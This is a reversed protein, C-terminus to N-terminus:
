FFFWFARYQNPHLFVFGGFIGFFCVRVVGKGLTEKEYQSHTFHLFLALPVGEPSPSPPWALAGAQPIGPVPPRTPQRRRPQLSDSMVSGRWHEQRPSGLSPPGPPSGDIPNRPTPCSQAVESEHVPSPFPLGSWHQQKSFGLSPPAQHAAMWRVCDSM